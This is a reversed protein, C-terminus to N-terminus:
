CYYDIMYWLNWWCVNIFLYYVYPPPFFFFIFSFKYIIKLNKSDGAAAPGVGLLWCCFNLVCVMNSQTLESIHIISMHHKWKGCKGRSHPRLYRHCINWTRNIIVEENLEDNWMNLGCSNDRRCSSKVNKMEEHFLESCIVENFYDLYQKCGFNFKNRDSM